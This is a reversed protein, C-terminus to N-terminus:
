ARPGSDDWDRSQERGGKARFWSNILVVATNAEAVGFEGVVTGFEVALDDLKAAQDDDFKGRRRGLWARGSGVYRHSIKRL